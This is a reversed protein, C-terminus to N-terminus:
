ASARFDQLFDFDKATVKRLGSAKGAGICKKIEVRWVLGDGFCGRKSRVGLLPEIICLLNAEAVEAFDGTFTVRGNDASVDEFGYFRCEEATLGELGFLTPIALKM